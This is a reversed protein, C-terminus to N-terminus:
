PGVDVPGATRLQDRLPARSIEEGSHDRVLRRLAPDRLCSIVALNSRDRNLTQWMTAVQEALLVDGTSGTNMLNDPLDDRHTLGFYHGLEHAFTRGRRSPDTLSGAPNEIMGHWMLPYSSGEEFQGGAYGATNPQNSSPSWHSQINKPAQRAADKVAALSSGLPFGNDNLQVPAMAANETIDGAHLVLLMNVGASALYDNVNDITAPIVNNAYSIHPARDATGVPLYVHTDVFLLATREASVRIPADGRCDHKALADVLTEVQCSPVAILSAAVAAGLLLRRRTVSM